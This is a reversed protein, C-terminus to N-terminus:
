LRIFIHLWPLLLESDRALAWVLLPMLMFLM